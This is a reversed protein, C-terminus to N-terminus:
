TEERGELWDAIPKLIWGECEVWPKVPGDGVARRGKVKAFDKMEKCDMPPEFRAELDGWALDIGGYQYVRIYTLEPFMKKGSRLDEIQEVLVSLPDRSKFKLRALNDDCDDPISHRMKLILKANVVANVVASTMLIVLLLMATDKTKAAIAARGHGGQSLLRGERLRRAIHRLKSELLNTLESIKTVLNLVTLKTEKAMVAGITQDINGVVYLVFFQKM